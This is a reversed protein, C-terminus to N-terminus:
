FSRVFAEIMFFYVWAVLGICLQLIGAAIAILAVQKSATGKARAIKGAIISLVGLPPAIYRMGFYVAQEAFVDVVGQVESISARLIGVIFLTILLASGIVAAVLWHQENM